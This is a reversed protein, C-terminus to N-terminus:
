LAEVALNEPGSPIGLAKLRHLLTTRRLGLRRATESKNWGTLNLADLIFRRELGELFAGLETHPPLTLDPGHAIAKAVGAPLDALQLRDEHTGLAMAREVVNELERVNGPWEYAELARLADADLQRLPVGMAKASKRVFHSVLVPIDEPHEKLPQLQIPIVNLRYYLDERFRKQAVLVELNENTAVVVRVNVKITRTSGLPTFEREQLVRLLKVQLSIPMTGVEDLFLTGGEAQQFRGPRDTRADTYAGKVHGFLEDELLNEPIAGCHLAVFPAHSRRSFHHLARAVLEKGTGSPGTILVTSPSPAVRQVLTMLNEWSAGCGVLHPAGESELASAKIRKAERKLEAMEAGRALRSRLEEIRFPKSVFDYIGLRMAELVQEVSTTGSLMMVVTDPHTLAERALDLGSGDPLILDLIAMDFHDQRLLQEARIGSGTQVVEHGVRTLLSGVVSLILPDDDVLLIRIPPTPM